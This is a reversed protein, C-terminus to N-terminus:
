AGLAGAKAQRLRGSSPREIAPHASMGGFVLRVEALRTGGREFFQESDPERRFGLSEYFRLGRANGALVWLTVESFGRHLLLVRSAEWLAWGVGASWARPAVYLAWVEGKHIGAGEDRCHGFTVFGLAEGGDTKAVLTRSASTALISIWSEERDTVSLSALYEAPFLADYAAQWAAVHIVALASCDERQAATIQM